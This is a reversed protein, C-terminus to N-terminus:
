INKPAWHGHLCPSRTGGGPRCVLPRGQPGTDCENKWSNTALFFFYNGQLISINEIRLCYLRMGNQKGRRDELFNVAASMSIASIILVQKRNGEEAKTELDEEVKQEGLYGIFGNQTFYVILNFCINFPGPLYSLCSFGHVCTLDTCLGSMIGPVEHVRDGNSRVVTLYPGTTRLYQQIHGEIFTCKICRIWRVACCGEPLSLYACLVQLVRFTM